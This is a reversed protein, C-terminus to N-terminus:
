PVAVIGWPMKGVPITAVVKYAATDIVANLRRVVVDPFRFVCQSPVFCPSSEARIAHVAGTATLSIGLGVNSFVPSGFSTTTNTSRVYGVRNFSTDLEGNLRLRVLFEARRDTGTALLRGASDTTM